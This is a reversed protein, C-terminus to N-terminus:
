ENTWPKGGYDQALRRDQYATLLERTRDDREIFVVKIWERVERVSGVLVTRREGGSTTEEWQDYPNNIVQMIWEPKLDSHRRLLNGGHGLAKPLREYERRLRTDEPTESM